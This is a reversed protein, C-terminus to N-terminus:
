RRRRRGWVWQQIVVGLLTLLAMLVLVGRGSQPTWLLTGDGVGMALRQYAAVLLLAGVVSSQLAAAFHPMLLGMLLGVGGGVAAIILLNRRAPEERQEWWEDVQERQQEVQTRWAHLVTPEQQSGELREIMFRAAQSLESDAQQATSATPQVPEAQPDVQGQQTAPQVPEPVTDHVWALHTLPGLVALMLATSGAMWLRVLALALVAGVVAGGLVWLWPPDNPTVAQSLAAGMVVGLVLGCVVAASRYIRRGSTLLVVGLVGLIIALFLPTAVLAGANELIDGAASGIQEIDNTEGNAAGNGAPGQGNGATGGDGGDDQEGPSIPVTALINSM